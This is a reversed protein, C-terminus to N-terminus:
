ARRWVDQDDIESVSVNFKNRIRDKLRKLIGRKDKLSNSAPIYLDLILVGVLM